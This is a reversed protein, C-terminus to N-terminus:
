QAFPSGPQAYGYRNVGYSLRPAGYSTAGWDTPENEQSMVQGATNLGKNLLYGGAAMGALSVATVPLKWGQLGLTDKGPTTTPAPAPAGAAAPPSGAPTRYPGQSANVAPPTPAVGAETAAQQLRGTPGNFVSQAKQKLTTPAATPAPVPPTYTGAVAGRLRATPSVSTLARQLLPAPKPVVGLSQGAQLLRGTAGFASKELEADLRGIDAAICSLRVMGEDMGVPMDPYSGVTGYGGGPLMPAVLMPSRSHRLPADVMSRMREAEMDRMMRNKFQSSQEANTLAEQYRNVAGMALMAAALRLALPATGDAQKSLYVDETGYLKMLHANPNM